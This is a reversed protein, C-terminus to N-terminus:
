LGLWKRAREGLDKPKCGMSAFQLSFAACEHRVKLIPVECLVNWFPKAHVLRVQWSILPRYVPPPEFLPAERTPSTRGPIDKKTRTTETGARRFYKTFIKKMKAHSNQMSFHLPNKTSNKQDGNGVFRLVFIRLLNRPLIRSSFESFEPFKREAVEHGLKNHSEKKTGPIEWNETTRKRKRPRNFPGVLANGFPDPVRNLVELDFFLPGGGLSPVGRTLRREFTLNCEYDGRARSSKKKESPPRYGQREFRFVM